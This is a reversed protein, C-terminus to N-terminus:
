FYLDHGEPGIRILVVDYLFRIATVALSTGLLVLCPTDGWARLFGYALGCLLAVPALVRAALVVFPRLTLLALFTLFRVGRLLARLLACGADAAIIFLRRRAPIPGGAFGGTVRSARNDM